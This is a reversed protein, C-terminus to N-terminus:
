RGAPLRDVRGAQGLGDAIGVKVLFPDLIERHMHSGSKRATREAQHSHDLLARQGLLPVQQHHNVLELLKEAESSALGFATAFGVCEDVQQQLRATV